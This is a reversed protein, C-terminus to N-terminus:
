GNVIHAGSALLQTQAAAPLSAFASATITPGVVAAPNNPAAAGHFIGLPDLAGSGVQQKLGALVIGSAASVAVNQIITNSDPVLSGINSVLGGFSSLDLGAM